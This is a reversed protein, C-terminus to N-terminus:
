SPGVTADGATGAGEECGPRPEGGRGWGSLTVWAAPLLLVLVQWNRHPERAFARVLTVVLYTLGALALSRVLPTKGRWGVLVAAVLPVFVAFFLAIPEHINGTHLVWGIERLNQWLGFGVYGPRPGVWLHAGVQYVTALAVLGALVPLLQRRRGRELAMWCAVVAVLLVGDERNAVLLLFAPYLLASRRILALLCLAMLLGQMTGAPDVEWPNLSFGAGLLVLGLSHGPPFWVRALGYLAVYLAFTLLLLFASHATAPSGTAALGAYLAPMLVRYVNPAYAYLTVGTIAPPPPEHTTWARWTTLYQEVLVPGFSQPPVCLLYGARHQYHETIVALCFLLLLILLSRSSLRM